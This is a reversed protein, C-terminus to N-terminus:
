EPEWASKGLDDKEVKGGLGINYQIGSRKVEWHDDHLVLGKNLHYQVQQQDVVQTDAGYDFRLGYAIAPIDNTAISEIMCAAQRCRGCYGREFDTEKQAEKEMNCGLELLAQQYAECLGLNCSMNQILRGTMYESSIFNLKKSNTERYHEETDIMNELLREKLSGIIAKTIADCNKGQAAHKIDDRPKSEDSGMRGLNTEDSDLGGQLKLANLDLMDFIEPSYNFIDFRSIGQTNEINRVIQKQIDHIASGRDSPMYTPQVSWLHAKYQDLQQQRIEEM